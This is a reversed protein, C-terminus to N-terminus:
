RNTESFIQPYNHRISNALEQSFLAITQSLAEIRAPYTHSSFQLQYKKQGHYSIEKDHQRSYNWKVDLLTQNQSNVDLKSVEIHLKIKAKNSNPESANVASAPSLHTNLNILLVRSFDQKLPSIWRHQDNLQLTYDDKRLLVQPRELYDPFKIKALSLKIDDTKRSQLQIASNKVSNLQYFHMQRSQSCASLVIFLSFLLINKAFNM